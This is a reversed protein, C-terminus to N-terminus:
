GRSKFLNSVINWAKTTISHEEEFSTIAGIGLFTVVGSFVMKVGDFIMRRRGSVYEVYEHHKNVDVKVSELKLKEIELVKNSLIELRKLLTDYEESGPSYNGIETQVNAIELEYWEVNCLNRDIM